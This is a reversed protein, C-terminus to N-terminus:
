NLFENQNLLKADELLNFTFCYGWKTLVYWYPAEISNRWYSQVRYLFWLYQSNNNMTAILNENSISINQKWLNNQNYIHDIAQVIEYSYFLFKKIM